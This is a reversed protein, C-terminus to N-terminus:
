KYAIAGSDIQAGNIDIARFSIADRGIQFLMFHHLRDNGFEFLADKRDIDGRRLKGAGGSVFYAIGKQPKLREYFHDHGSLVLQVGFRVFLPELLARLKRDSGHTRGSSYIPHHFFAIKWRAKSAALEKEIWACQERDMRSSDLAFFQALGEGRTFTYYRRGSMNFLPYSTEEDAKGADHNGLSAQFRVGRALLGRYPAEFKETMRKSGGSGYINDGLMLVLDFPAAEHAREMTQAIAFQEKKGTGSDGIAAFQVSSAS